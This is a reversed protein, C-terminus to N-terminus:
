LSYCSNDPRVVHLPLYDVIHIDESESDEDVSQGQRLCCQTFCINKRAQPSHCAAWCKTGAEEIQAAATATALIRPPFEADARLLDCFERSFHCCNRRLTSYKSGPWRENLSSILRMVGARSIRACGMPISESFHHGPCCRPRCAFVGGGEDCKRFSWEKGYVEVGCHFVGMGVHGLVKNIAQSSKSRGLDYINLTINGSTNEGALGPSCSSTSISRSSCVSSYNSAMTSATPERTPLILVADADRDDPTPCRNIRALGSLGNLSKTSRHPMKPKTFCMDPVLDSFQKTSEGSHSKKPVKQPLMCSEPACLPRPDPSSYERWLQPNCAADPIFNNAQFAPSGDSGVGPKCQPSPRPSPSSSFSRPVPTSGVSRPDTVRRFTRPSLTFNHESRAPM